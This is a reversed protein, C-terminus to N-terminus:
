LKLQVLRNERKLKKQKKFNLHFLQFLNEKKLHNLNKFLITIMIRVEMIKTDVEMTITGVMTKDLVKITIILTITDEKAEMEVAVVMIIKGRNLLDMTTIKNNIKIMDVVVVVMDEQVKDIVKIDVEKMEITEIMEIMETMETMEVMVIEIMEVKIMNLTEVLNKNVSRIDIEIM